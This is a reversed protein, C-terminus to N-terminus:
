FSSFGVTNWVTFDELNVVVDVVDVGEVFVVVGDVLGLYLLLFSCFLDILFDM